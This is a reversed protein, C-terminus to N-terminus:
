LHWLIVSHYANCKFGYISQLRFLVLFNFPYKPRVLFFILNYSGRESSNFISNSQSPAVNGPKIKYITNQSLYLLIDPKIPIPSRSASRM